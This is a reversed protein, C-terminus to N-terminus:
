SSNALKLPPNRTGSPLINNPDYSEGYEVLNSLIKTLKSYELFEPAMPIPQPSLLPTKLWKQKLSAQLAM